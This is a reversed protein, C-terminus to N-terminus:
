QVKVLCKPVLNQSGKFVFLLVKHFGIKDPNLIEKSEFNQQPLTEKSELINQGFIIEVWFSKPVFIAKTWFTKSLSIQVLCFKKVFM